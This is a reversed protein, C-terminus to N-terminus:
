PASRGRASPASCGRGRRARGVVGLDRLAPAPRVAAHEEVDGVRALVEDDRLQRAHVALEDLVLHEVDRALPHLDRRGRVVRHAPDDDLGLGVGGLHDPRYAAPSHVAPSCPAFRSPPLESVSVITNPLRAPSAAAANEASLSMAIWGRRTM